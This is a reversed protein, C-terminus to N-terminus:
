RISGLESPPWYSFVARGIILSRDVPGWVRSDESDSRRDGLVFYSGPGLRLPGYSDSDFLSESVYGEEIESGDVFVKGARVEITEGPLGITRKVLYRRTDAPSRFVVVEGRAIGRLRPSLKDVLIREGDHLRPQMSRGEVEFPQVLFLVALLPISLALTLDRLFRVAERPSHFITM